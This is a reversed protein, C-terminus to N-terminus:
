IKMTTFVEIEGEENNAYKFSRKEGEKRENM